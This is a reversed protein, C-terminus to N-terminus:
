SDEMLVAAIFIPVPVVPAVLSGVLLVDVKNIKRDPRGDEPLEVQRARGKSAAPKHKPTTSAALAKAARGVKLRRGVQESEPENSAVTRSIEELVEDTSNWTQM